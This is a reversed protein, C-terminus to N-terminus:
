RLTFCLPSHRIYPPDLKQLGIRFSPSVIFFHKKPITKITPSNTKGTMVAACILM